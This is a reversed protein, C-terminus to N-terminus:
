IFYCEGSLALIKAQVKKGAWNVTVMSGEKLEVNKEVILRIPAIGTKKEKPFLFLAKSPRRSVERCLQRFAM